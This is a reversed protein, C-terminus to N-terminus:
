FFTQNLWPGYEGTWMDNLQQFVRAWDIEVGFLLELYHKNGIAQDPAALCAQAITYTCTPCMTVLTDAGTAKAEDIVRWVRRDTIDPDYSAVAGGAGCCLTGRKHHDIERQEAQPLYRAMLARISDAHATDFRDHCSDFFTLSPRNLPAFGEPMGKARRKAACERLLEPLPVVEIGEPMVASFEEGCGPCIVVMRTIGAQQMQDIFRQRLAEARDFLGASMLPSGCCGDSLALQVGSDELWQAVVRVVEPAYSVLSCGPFFLTDAVGPGAEAAQDLSLLDGYGIGYIARYASFINWENDVMVLKSDDPPMLGAEMFLQRWDRMRDAALIHHGCAATCFGCFCCQRLANYLPFDTQVLQVVATPREEPEVAMIADYAAEVRGIDLGPGALVECRRTCKGCHSCQFHKNAWESLITLQDDGLSAISELESPTLKQPKM